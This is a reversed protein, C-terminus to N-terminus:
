SRKSAKIPNVKKKDTTADDKTKLFSDAMPCDFRAWKKDPWAYTGCFNGDARSCFTIKTPGDPNDAPPPITVTCREVLPTREEMLEKMLQNM